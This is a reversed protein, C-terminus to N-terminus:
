RPALASLTAKIAKAHGSVVARVSFRRLVSCRSRLLFWRAKTSPIKTLLSLTRGTPWLNVHDCGGDTTVLDGSFKRSPLQTSGSPLNANFARKYLVYRARTSHRTLEILSQALTLLKVDVGWKALM